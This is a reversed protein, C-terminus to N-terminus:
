VALFLWFSFNLSLYRSGFAGSQNTTIVEKEVCSSFRDADAIEAPSSGGDFGLGGECRRCRSEEM